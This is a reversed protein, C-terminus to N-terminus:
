SFFRPNKLFWQVDAAPFSFLCRNGLDRLSSHMLFMPMSQMFCKVVHALPLRIFIVALLCLDHICKYFAYVFRAFCFFFLLGSACELNEQYRSLMFQPQAPWSQFTTFWYWQICHHFFSHMLTESTVRLTESCGIWAMWVADTDSVGRGREAPCDLDRQARGAVWLKAEESRASVLGQGHASLVWIMEFTGFYSLQPTSSNLLMLPVLWAWLIPLVEVM